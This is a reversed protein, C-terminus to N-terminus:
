ENKTYYKIAVFYYFMCLSVLFSFVLNIESMSFGLLRFSTNQCNSSQTSLLESELNDLSMHNNIKVLNSCSTSEILGYEVGVHYTSIIVNFIFLMIIQVIFFKHLNKFILGLASILPLMYYPYRQIYCLRCPNHHLGYEVFYAFIIAAVSIIIFFSYIYDPNIKKISM